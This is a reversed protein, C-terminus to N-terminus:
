VGQFIYRNRDGNILKNYRINFLINGYMKCTKLFEEYWLRWWKIHLSYPIDDMQYIWFVGRQNWIIKMKMNNM